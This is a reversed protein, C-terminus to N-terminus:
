KTYFAHAPTQNPEKPAETLNSKTEPRPGPAESGISEKEPAPASKAVDPTKKVTEKTDANTAAEKENKAM